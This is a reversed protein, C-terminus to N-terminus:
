IRDVCDLLEQVERLFRSVHFGDCVAHHVQVALPLYFQKDKEYFKGMTFIPLLYNYGKQLNLNFGEFTTWPLMSVPFTNEPVNPKAIMREVNGYQKMDKEYQRCFVRYDETYETWINSFTESDKHFVTYCPFLTDFVGVKGETSISMRFEDHHNVIKSLFYLMTPYLKLKSARLKTINLQTTISYTCPVVSYYHNFYEERKWASRDIEKWIM